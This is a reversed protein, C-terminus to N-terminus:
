SRLRFAARWYHLQVLFSVNKIPREHRPWFFRAPLQM